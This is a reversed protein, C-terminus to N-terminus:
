KRRSGLRCQKVQWLQMSAQSEAAHAKQEKAGKSSIRSIFSAAHTAAVASLDHPGSAEDYGALLAM